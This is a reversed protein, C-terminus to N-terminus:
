EDKDKSDEDKEIEIGVEILIEDNDETSFPVVKKPESM